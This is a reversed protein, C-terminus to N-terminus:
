RLIDFDKEHFRYSSAFHVQYKRITKELDFDAVLKEVIRKRKEKFQDSREFDSEFTDM